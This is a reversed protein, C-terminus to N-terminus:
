PLLKGPNLIGAPDLAAKIARMAALETGGRWQALLDRKIAGVGHEASFSGGFQRATEAVLTMIAESDAAHSAPDGGLMVNFHINGDGLHGFAVPQCAPFQAAMAAHAARLFAITASVPVSIDNKVSAGARKQSEPIEERLRWIAGIQGLSTALAADGIEGAELAGALAAEAMAQLNAGKRPTALEVLAYDAAPAALPLRTNPIHRLVLDLAAGSIYEFAVLAGPDTQRLRRLLGLASEPASLAALAVVREAPAPELKLCAATIIGLTGESGALLHRLAYGTNDKRLRRLAGLVSGDALVAEVGLLLDRANGYRLTNIGGANTALVGGIQASGESAISLPLLCGAEAAAEQAAQLTVGAELTITMDLADVQRVQNMRGLSLLIEEGSASPTAGAVLSTNGGQVVVGVGAAACLRLTAAVEQTNAPRAVALARGTRIARWDTCYPQADTGTLLGPAGLIAALNTLLSTQTPTM